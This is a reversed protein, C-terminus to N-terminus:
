DREREIEREREREGKRGGEGRGKGRGGRERGYYILDLLSAGQLGEQDEKV